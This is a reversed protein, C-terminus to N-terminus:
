SVKGEYNNIVSNGTAEREESIKINEKRTEVYAKASSTIATIPNTAWSLSKKFNNYGMSVMPNGGVEQSLYGIVEMTQNVVAMATFAMPIGQRLAHNLQGPTKKVNFNDSTTKKQGNGSGNVGYGGKANHIYINYNQGM